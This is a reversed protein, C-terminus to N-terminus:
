ICVTERSMKYDYDAKYDDYGAAWQDRLVCGKEYPNGERFWGRSADSYGLTYAHGKEQETYIRNM